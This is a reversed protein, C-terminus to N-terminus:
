EAFLHTLNNEEAFEKTMGLGLANLLMGIEEISQCKTADIAFVAPQVEQLELNGQVTEM